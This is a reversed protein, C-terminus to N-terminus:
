KNTRTIATVVQKLDPSLNLLSGMKLQNFDGAIIFGLGDGYKSCLTNYSESIHDLFATRRTQKSSYYIPAVAIQKVKANPPLNKPILLTWVAEM